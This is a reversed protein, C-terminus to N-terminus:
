GTGSRPPLLEVRTRCSVGDAAPSRAPSELAGDDGPVPRTANDFGAGSGSQLSFTLDEAEVGNVRVNRGILPLLSVQGSARAVSVRWQQRRTRGSADVAKVSVQGPYWTWASEWEVNFKDPRIRNVLDQTLPVNLALNALVLYSVEALVVAVAIRRTFKWM